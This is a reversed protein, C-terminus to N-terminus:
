KDATIFGAALAFITSKGSGSSGVLATVKGPPVEFNINKLTPRDKEYSFDVQKFRLHGEIDTLVKKGKQLDEESPTEM